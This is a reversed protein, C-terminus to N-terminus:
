EISPKKKRMFHNVNKVGNKEGTLDVDLHMSCCFLFFFMLMERRVFRSVRKREERNKEIKHIM